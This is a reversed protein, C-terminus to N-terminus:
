EDNTCAFYVKLKYNDMLPKLQVDVLHLWKDFGKTIEFTLLFKMTLEKM